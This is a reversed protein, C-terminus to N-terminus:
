VEVPADGALRDGYRERLPAVLEALFEDVQEPARGVYKAADLAAPVDVGTFAEDAAIRALLDNEGGQQKIVMAAAQSHRRIREHLDQRDGGQAVAQMILNETAMFPLEAELHKAIVRPYVVLGSAVNQYLLLVADVALFAQPLTLRRIASDDLTREMWQTALTSATGSELSMVFRALACIRESRMPNRKYAMASSGVQDDEFPEEIERRNQLLRLDTAAKHASQAIGSLVGLVQSDVKRPYTQGTVCYSEDFGMKEAILRDLRRVKEHDGDFLSLFSAQTGTTGKAGRAKMAALRRELEELDLLLDYAWMAARKGVTTPQAPQLHTFALTPLDRYQEAFGALRDIVRVLRTRVLELADRILMLDANDTVFCSTAGLHIIGRAKPCADGFTHVHAMVDHRLKREYRRAADFDITDVHAKLEAVQEPTIALGLKAEAEALVVWLKRWLRFKTRPSWLASMEASAYRAILPNEYVDDAM